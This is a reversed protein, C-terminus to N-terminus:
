DVKALYQLSLVLWLGLICIYMYLEVTYMIGPFVSEISNIEEECLDTMMHRPKWQPNWQSLISLAETISATTEDQVIFSAVIIYDVNTKVAVFFLPLSYKTTKYTADLFALEQGYRSLLRSQWATQHVFLLRGQQEKATTIVEDNLAVDDDGDEEDSLETNRFEGSGEIYPRSFFRDNTSGKEDKWKQILQQVNDQDMFSLRARMAANYMHNQITKARPFYRKNSRQPQEKGRFLDDKIYIKLHRRMEDVSRVGEGVLEEIKRIVNEDLRQTLGSHQLFSFPKYCKFNPTHKKHSIFNQQRLM